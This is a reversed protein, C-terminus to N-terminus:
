WEQYCMSDRAGNILKQLKTKDIKDNTCVNNLINQISVDANQFLMNCPVSPFDDDNLTFNKIEKCAANEMTNTIQQINGAVYDFEQSVGKKYNLGIKDGSRFLFHFVIFTVLSVILIIIVLVLLALLM